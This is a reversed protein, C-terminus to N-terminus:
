RCHQTRCAGPRRHPQPAPRRATRRWGSCWRGGACTRCTRHRSRGRRRGPAGSVDGTMCVLQRSGAQLWSNKRLAQAGIHQSEGIRSAHRCSSSVGPVCCFSFPVAYRGLGSSGNPLRSGALRTTCRGFMVASGMLSCSSTPGGVGSALTPFAKLGLQTDTGTTCRSLM